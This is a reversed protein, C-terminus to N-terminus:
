RSPRISWWSGPYIVRPCYGSHFSSLPIGIPKPRLGGSEDCDPSENWPIWATPPTRAMPSSATPRVSSNISARPLMEVVFFERRTNIQLGVFGALWTAFSNLFLVSLQANWVIETSSLGFKVSSLYTVGGSTRSANASSVNTADFRASYPSPDGRHTDRISPFKAQSWPSVSKLGSSKVFAYSASNGGDSSRGRNPTSTAREFSPSVFM